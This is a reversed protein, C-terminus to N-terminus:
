VASHELVFDSLSGITKPSYPWFDDVTLSVMWFVAVVLKRFLAFLLQKEDASAHFYSAKSVLEGQNDYRDIM